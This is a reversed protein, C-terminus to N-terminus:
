PKAKCKRTRKHVRPTINDPKLDRHAICACGERPIGAVLIRGDDHQAM